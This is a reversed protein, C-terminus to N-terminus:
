KNINKDAINKCHINKINKHQLGDLTMWIPLLYINYLFVCTKTFEQAALYNLIKLVFCSCIFPPTLLLLMM